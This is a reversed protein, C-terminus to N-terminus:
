PGHYSRGKKPFGYQLELHHNEYHSLSCDIYYVIIAWWWETLIFDFAFVLGYQGERFSAWKAMSFNPALIGTLLVAYKLNFCTNAIYNSKADRFFLM